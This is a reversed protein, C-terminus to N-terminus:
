IAGCFPANRHRNVALQTDRDFENPDSFADVVELREIGSFEHLGEQFALPGFGRRSKTSRKESDNDPPLFENEAFERNCRNEYTNTAVSRWRLRALPTSPRM